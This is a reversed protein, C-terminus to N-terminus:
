FHLAVGGGFVVNHNRSTLQTVGLAPVPAYFDRAQGRLTILKSLRFDVGAGFQIAYTNSIRPKFNTSGDLLTKGGEERAFGGGASAWPRLRGDPRFTLRLSPTAFVASYNSAANGGSSKSLKVQPLIGFPLEVSVNFHPTERLRRALGLEFANGGQFVLPSTSFGGNPGIDHDPVLTSGVVIFFENKKEPGAATAPKVNPDAAENQALASGSLLLALVALGLVSSKRALSLPSLLFRM